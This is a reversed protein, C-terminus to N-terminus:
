QKNPEGPRREGALEIHEPSHPGSTGEAGIDGQSV